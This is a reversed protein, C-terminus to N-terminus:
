PIRRSRSRGYEGRAGEYGAERDLDQSDHEDYIRLTRLNPMRVWLPAGILVRGYGHWHGSGDVPVDRHIQACWEADRQVDGYTFKRNWPLTSWDQNGSQHSGQKLLLNLINYALEERDMEAGENFNNTIFREISPAASSTWGGHSYSGPDIFRETRLRDAFNTISGFLCIAIPMGDASQASTFSTGIGLSEENFGVFESFVVTGQGTALSAQDSPRSLTSVNPVKLDKEIALAVDHRSPETNPRSMQVSAVPSKIELGSLNLSNLRVSNDGIVDQIRRDSWYLYQM